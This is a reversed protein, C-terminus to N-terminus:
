IENKWEEVVFKNEEGIKVYYLEDFGEEPSPLQLKAHTSKIGALSIREKGERKENRMIADAINSQFYYGVVRFKANKAIDIYKKRDEVSPNTNDVVFPQKAKICADLFIDERIRTKLMDLNIRIHTKFFREKYFTSKGTAQIGIFIVAEM